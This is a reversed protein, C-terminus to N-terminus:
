SSRMQVIWRLITDYFAFMLASTGITQGIKIGMGKYFGGIGEDNLIRRLCQSVPMDENEKKQMRTKVVDLPTTLGGAIAGSLGGSVLYTALDFKGSPNLWKKLSENSMMMLSCYPANMALTTPLSRFFSAGGARRLPAYMM